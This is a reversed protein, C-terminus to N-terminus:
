RRSRCPAFAGPLAWEGREKRYRVAPDVRLEGDTDLRIAVREMPRAAPGGQVEGEGSFSSGHCMCRFERAAAQYRLRCGLHTCLASYAAFGQATRVLWVDHDQVLRASVQGVAYEDPRGARVRLGGRSARPLLSRLGVALTGLGAVALALLGTRSLVDRRGFLSSEASSEASAPPSERSLAM